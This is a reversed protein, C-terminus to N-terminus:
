HESYGVLALVCREFIQFKFELSELLREDGEGILHRAATAAFSSSYSSDSSHLIGNTGVTFFIFVITVFEYEALMRVLYGLVNKDSNRKGPISVIEM